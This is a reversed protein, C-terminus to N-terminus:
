GRVEAMRRERMKDLFKGCQKSCCIVMFMVGLLLLIVGAVILAFHTTNLGGPEDNAPTASDM